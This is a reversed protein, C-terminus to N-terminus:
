FGDEDEDEDEDEDGYADGAFGASVLVLVIV